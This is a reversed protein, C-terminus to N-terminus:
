LPTIRLPRIAGDYGGTRSPRRLGTKKVSSFGASQLRSPSGDLSGRLSSVTSIRDSDVSGRRSGRGHGTGVHISKWRLQERQEQLVQLCGLYRSESAHLERVLQQRMSEDM